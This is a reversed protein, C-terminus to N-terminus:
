RSNVRRHPCSFSHSCQRKSAILTLWNQGPFSSFFPKIPVTGITSSSALIRTHRTNITYIYPVNHRTKEGIGSIATYMTMNHTSHHGWIAQKTKLCCTLAAMATTATFSEGIVVFGRQCITALLAYLQKWFHEALAFFQLFFLFLMVDDVFWPSSFSLKTRKSASNLVLRYSEPVAQSTLLMGQGVAAAHIQDEYSAEKRKFTVFCAIM